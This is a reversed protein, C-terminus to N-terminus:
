GRPHRWLGELTERFAEQGKPKSSDVVDSRRTMPFRSLSFDSRVDGFIKAFITSSCRGEPNVTTVLKM